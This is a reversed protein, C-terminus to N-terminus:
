GDYRNNNIAHETGKSYISGLHFNVSESKYSGKMLGGTLDMTVAAFM